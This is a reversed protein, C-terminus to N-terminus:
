VCLPQGLPQGPPSGRPASPSRGDLFHCLEASRRPSPPPPWPQRAAAAPPPLRAAPPLPLAPPPKQPTCLSGRSLPGNSTGGHRPPRACPSPSSAAPPVCLRPTPSLAADLPPPRPPLPRPASSVQHSTLPHLLGRFRLTHRLRAPALFRPAPTVKARARLRTPTNPFRRLGGQSLASADAGKSKGVCMPFPQNFEVFEGERMKPGLKGSLRDAGLWGGIVGGERGGVWRGAGEGVGEWRVTIGMPLGGRPM